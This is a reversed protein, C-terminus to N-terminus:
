TANISEAFLGPWHGKTGTPKSRSPSTTSRGGGGGHLSSVSQGSSRFHQLTCVPGPLIHRLGTNGPANDRNM